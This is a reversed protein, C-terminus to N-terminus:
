KRKMERLKIKEEKSIRTSEIMKQIGKNYTWDSLNNDILYSLTKEKYKIYIVSLLWAIAMNVYYYDSKINDITKIVDDIYEDILFHDMLMVIMFRLEYEKTSSKYKLLYNWVQTQNEKKIKFSAACIDCIAWNDIKPIFIDLYKLKTELDLPCGSILLGEIMTQEYYQNPINKLYSEDWNKLIQKVVKKIEPVRVGIINDIGPCLNSHFKQYTLDQKRFLEETIPNWKDM